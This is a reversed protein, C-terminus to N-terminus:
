LLNSLAVPFLVIRIRLSLPQISQSTHCSESLGDWPSGKTKKVQLTGLAPSVERPANTITLKIFKVPGHNWSMQDFMIRSTEIFTNKTYFYDIFRDITLISSFKIPALSLVIAWTVVEWFTRHFQELLAYNEVTKHRILVFFMLYSTCKKLIVFFVSWCM